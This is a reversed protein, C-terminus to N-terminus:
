AAAIHVPPAANEATTTDALLRQHSKSCEFIPSARIAYDMFSATLLQGNSDYICREM